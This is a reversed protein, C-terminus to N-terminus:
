LPDAIPPFLSMSSFIVPYHAAGVCRPTSVLDPRHEKGVLERWVLQKPTAGAGGTFVSTVKISESLTSIAMTKAKEHQRVIGAGCVCVCVRHKSHRVNCVNRM